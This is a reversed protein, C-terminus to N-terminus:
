LCVQHTCPVSSPFFRGTEPADGSEEEAETESDSEEYDDHEEVAKEVIQPEEEDVTKTEKSEVQALVPRYVSKIDKKKKSLFIKYEMNHGFIAMEVYLTYVFCVCVFLQVTTFIKSKVM